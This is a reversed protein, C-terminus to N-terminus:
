GCIGRYAKMTEYLSDVKGNTLVNMTCDQKTISKGVQRRANRIIKDQMMEMEEKREKYKRYMVLDYVNGHNWKFIRLKSMVEAGRKSWGMPRSSMRDSLLHSVHGEASCGIIEHGKENKIIIGDWNRLLYRKTDAIQGRKFENETVAEIKGFVDKLETQSERSIADYIMDKADEASDGLHTISAQIYKNLHYQDLVFRSKTIWSLGQRIWSAGDGSLYVTELYEMDYNLDIYNAVELWLEENSAGEYVGGFYHTGVLHHRKSRESDKEIGEFVYVLKPMITNSKYGKEDMRLDGKKNWFQAAVHDEDANIYLRRVQKKKEVTEKPMEVELGHLINKVTQKSVDDKLSACTGGKQYSSDIAEKIVNIVVDETMRAHPQIGFQKDALFTSKGGRLDKFLTRSYIMSGMSTLLTSEEDRIVEWKGKRYPSKKIGANVEEIIEKVIDTGLKNVFEQIVLIIDAIDNKNALTNKISEEMCELNNELFKVISLFMSLVKRIPSKINYSLEEWSLHEKKM